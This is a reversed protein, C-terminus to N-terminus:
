GDSRTDSAGFIWSEAEQARELQTQDREYPVSAKFLELRVRAREVDFYGSPVTAVGKEPQRYVQYNGGPRRVLIDGVRLDEPIQSPGGDLKNAWNVLKDYESEDGFEFVAPEEAGSVTKVLEDIDQLEQRRQAWEEESYIGFHGEDYLAIIKDGAWSPAHNRVVAQYTENLFDLIHSDKALVSAKTTRVFTRVGPIRTNQDETM